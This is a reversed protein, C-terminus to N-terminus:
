RTLFWSTLSMRNITAPLVEHYFRDSLFAVLRGGQPLIDLVSENALSKDSIDNEQNLYLRLVGGNEPLWEKNLYLICSIQRLPLNNKSEKFRDIHKKYSSGAAYLTLHSELTFLGLYLHENLRLRLKEMQAFYTQQAENEQSENLWYIRDGRVNISTNSHTRGTGALHMKAEQNLTRITLALAETDSPAIFHDMVGFGHTAIKEVLHEATHVLYDTLM